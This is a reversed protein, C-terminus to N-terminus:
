GAQGQMPVLNEGGDLGRTSSCLLYMVSRYFRSVWKRQMAEPGGNLHQALGQADFSARQREKKIDDSPELHTSLIVRSSAEVLKRTRDDM